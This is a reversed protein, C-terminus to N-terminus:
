TQIGYKKVFTDMATNGNPNEKRKIDVGSEGRRMADETKKIAVREVEAIINDMNKGRLFINVTEKIEAANNGKKRLIGSENLMQQADDRDEKTVPISYKDLTTEVEFKEPIESIVKTFMETNHKVVKQLEQYSEYSKEAGRIKGFRSDIYEEAQKTLLAAAKQKAENPVNTEGDELEDEEDIRYIQDFTKGAKKDDPHDKIYKKRLLDVKDAQLATVYEEHETASFVKNDLAFKIVEAKKSEEAEAKEEPSLVKIQDEKKILQDSSVGFRKKIIEEEQEATLTPPANLKAAADIQEQTLVEEDSM